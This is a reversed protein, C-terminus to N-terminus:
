AHTVHTIHHPLLEFRKERVNHVICNQVSTSILPM